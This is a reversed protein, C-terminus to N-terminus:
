PACPDVPGPGGFFVHDILLALDASDTVGDNNYDGRTTPCAADQFDPAGFYVVDIEIAVDVVDIVWNGNLDAQFPCMCQCVDGIGDADTDEQLPNVDEPCNDCADGVGDEDSDSQDANAVKPCNDYLDLAGDLDGDCSFRAVYLDGFENCKGVVAFGDAADVAIDYLGLFPVPPLEFSRILGEDSYQSIPGGLAYVGGGSSLRAVFRLGLEYGISVTDKWRIEGGVSLAVTEAVWDSTLSDFTMGTTLVAGSALVSITSDWEIEDLEVSWLSDGDAGYKTIGSGPGVWTIYPNDDKDLTIAMGQEWGGIVGRDLMRVWRLQGAQDYCITLIDTESSSFRIVGTALVSGDLAVAVSGLSGGTATGGADFKRVWLTDGGPSYKAVVCTSFLGSELTYGALCVNEQEDVSISTWLVDSPYDSSWIPVGNQDIRILGSGGGAVYIAGDRSIQLVSELPFGILGFGTSWLIQGRRDFKVLESGSYSGGLVYTNGASDIQVRRAGDYVGAIEIIGTWAIEPQAKVLPSQVAILVCALLAGSRYRDNM